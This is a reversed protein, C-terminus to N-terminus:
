FGQKKCKLDRIDGQMKCKSDSFPGSLRCKSDFPRPMKCKSECCLALSGAKQMKLGSLPGLMQMKLDLPVANQM